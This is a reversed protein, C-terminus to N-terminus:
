QHDALLGQRKWKFYGYVSAGLYFGYLLITSIHLGRKCYIYISIINVLFWFGWVEIIKQALVWTGVINLTTTLADLAPIPSDTLYRLMLFIGAWILAFVAMVRGFQPLTFHYYEIQKNKNGKTKDAINKKSSTWWKYFGYSCMMINFISFGMDAYIKSHFYVSAYIMSCMASIIWMMAKQEFELYLYLFSLLLGLIQIADWFDIDTFQSLLWDGLTSALFEM